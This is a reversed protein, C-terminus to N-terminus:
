ETGLGEPIIRLSNGRLEIKLRNTAALDNLYSVAAAADQPPLTTWIEWKPPFPSDGWLHDNRRKLELPLRALQKDMALMRFLSLIDDTERKTDTL